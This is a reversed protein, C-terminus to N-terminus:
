NNKKTKSKKILNDIFTKVRQDSSDYFDSKKAIKLDDLKLTSAHKINKLSAKYISQNLSDFM